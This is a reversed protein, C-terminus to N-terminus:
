ISNFSQLCVQLIVSESNDISLIDAPDCLPFAIGIM